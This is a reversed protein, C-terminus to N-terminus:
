GAAAIMVVFLMLLTACKRMPLKAIYNSTMRRM